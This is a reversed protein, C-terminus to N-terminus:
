LSALLCPKPLQHWGVRGATEAARAGANGITLGNLGLEGHVPAGENPTRFTERFGLGECFGALRM